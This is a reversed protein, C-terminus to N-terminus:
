LAWWVVAAMLVGLLLSRRDTIAFVVPDDHMDGRSALMWVQSLWLLLVPIVLWLLYPHGYLLRTDPDRIYLTMIIVGAYASGTGLARLQELDSVFYGRGNSIASGRERLNELESFRKVFALSLFFFVSFGALWTSIAVNTAASGALIRVTYLGSLLFVDLLLKRKFYFSYVLTSVMYLVLWGLFAHPLRLPYNGALRLILPQLFIALAVSVSLLM